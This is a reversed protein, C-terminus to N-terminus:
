PSKMFPFYELSIDYCWGHAYTMDDQWILRNYRQVMPNLRESLIDLGHQLDDITYELIERVAKQKM